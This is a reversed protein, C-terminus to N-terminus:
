SDSAEPTTGNSAATSTTAITTEVATIHLIHLLVQELPEDASPDTQPYGLTLYNATLLLQDPHHVWYAIGSSTWLRFPQFPQERLHRLIIDRM